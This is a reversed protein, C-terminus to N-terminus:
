ITLQYRLFGFFERAQAEYDGSDGLTAIRETLAKKM